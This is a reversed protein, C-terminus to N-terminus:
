LIEHFGSNWFLTVEHRRVALKSLTLIQGTLLEQSFTDLFLTGSTSGAGVCTSCDAHIHHLFSSKYNGTYEEVYKLYIRECHRGLM